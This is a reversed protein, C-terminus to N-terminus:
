LTLSYSKSAEHCPASSSFLSSPFLFYDVGDVTLAPHAPDPLGPLSPNLDQRYWKGATPVRLLDRSEDSRRTVCRHSALMTGLDCIVATSRTFSIVYHYPTLQVPTAQHTHTSDSGSSCIIYGTVPNPCMSQHHPYHYTYM